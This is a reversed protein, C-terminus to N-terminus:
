GEAAACLLLDRPRRTGLRNGVVPPSDLIRPWIRDGSPAAVVMRRDASLHAMRDIRSRDPELPKRRVPRLMAWTYIAWNVLAGLALGVPILLLDITGNM